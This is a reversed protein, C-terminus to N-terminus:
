KEKKQCPRGIYGQSRILSSIYVLSAKFEYLDAQRPRRLMLILPM